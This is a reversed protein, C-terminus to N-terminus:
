DEIGKIKSIFADYLDKIADKTVQKNITGDIIQMFANANIGIYDFIHGVTNLQIDTPRGSSSILQYASKALYEKQKETLTKLENLVVKPDNSDFYVLAENYKVDLGLSYSNLLDMDENSNEKSKDSTAITVLTGLIAM